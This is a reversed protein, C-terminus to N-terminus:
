DAANPSLAQDLHDDEILVGEPADEGAIELIIVPPTGV